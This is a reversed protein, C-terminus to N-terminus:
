LSPELIILHQCIQGDAKQFPIMMGTLMGDPTLGHGLMATFLIAIHVSLSEDSYIIHDSVIESDGDKKKKKDHKLNRIASLVDSSIISHTGHTCHTSQTCQTNIMNDIDTKLVEM